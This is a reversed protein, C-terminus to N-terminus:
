QQGSAPGSVQLDYDYMYAIEAQCSERHYSKVTALEM